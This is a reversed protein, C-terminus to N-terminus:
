YSDCTVLGVGYYYLQYYARIARMRACISCQMQMWPQKPMALCCWCVRNPAQVPQESCTYGSYIHSLTVTHNLQKKVLERDLQVWQGKQGQKELNNNWSHRKQCWIRGRDQLRIDYHQYWLHHSSDHIVARSGASTWFIEFCWKKWSILFHKWWTVLIPRFGWWFKKWIKIEAFIAAPPTWLKQM